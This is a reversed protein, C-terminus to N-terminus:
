QDKRVTQQLKAMMEDPTIFGVARLNKREQGDAGLFILTPVGQIGYAKKLEEVPGSSYQTLDAKLLVWNKLEERVRIDPFTKIELEKCPLCWNASFDIFVPKGDKRAQQILAEQYPVFALEVPQPWARYVLLGMAILFVGFAIQFKKFGPMVGKGSFVFGLLIGSLVLYAPTLVHNWHPPMVANLFYLPMGLLIMGFIKKVWVMWMGSRPLRQIETSFFGLWVYPFGLGLSLTFFMIFGLYPNAKAAVFTLLGISFPDVCPAAVIGFVLGMGFAGLWGSTSTNAIRNLIWSPAQIEYVGFMSLSLTVLVLSIGVLVLPSQLSSGLIRGTLAATVGLASYTVSIGCVYAVARGLIVLPKESKQNGFYSITLPIMPYVCPTLNLALGGLFILIFTLLIGNNQLYKQIINDTPVSDTGSSSSPFFGPNVPVSSQGKKGVRMPITLDAAAPALCSLDNCAQFQFKLPLKIKGPKLKPNLIVDGFVTVTRQYVSFSQSSGALTEKEGVPYQTNAELRGYPNKELILNAPILFDLIGEHASIHWGDQIQIVVAVKLHSGPEAPSASPYAQVDVVKASNSLAAHTSSFIFFALFLLAITQKLNTKM